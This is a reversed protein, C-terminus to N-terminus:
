GVALLEGQGSYVLLLTRFGQLRSSLLKAIAQKETLKLTWESKVEVLTNTKPLYFDAHYTRKKGLFDYKVIPAPTVVDKSKIGFRELDYLFFREYGQTKFTIGDIVTVHTKFRKDLRKKMNAPDELHKLLSTSKKFRVKDASNSSVYRYSKLNTLQTKAKVDNDLSSCRTSCHKSFGKVADIFM